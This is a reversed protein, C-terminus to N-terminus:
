IGVGVTRRRMTRARPNVTVTRLDDSTPVAANAHFVVPMLEIGSAGPIVQEELWELGFLELDAITAPQINGSSVSLTALPGIHTNSLQDRGANDSKRTVVAAINATNAAGQASTGAEGVEEEVFASRPSYIRQARVVDVTANTALLNLYPVLPKGAATSAFHSAISQMDVLYEGPAALDNVRWTTVMMFRQSFVTGLYSVQIIDNLALLPAAM